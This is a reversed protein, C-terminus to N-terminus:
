ACRARKAGLRLLCLAMVTLGAAAPRGCGGDLSISHVVPTVPKRGQGVQVRARSKAVM